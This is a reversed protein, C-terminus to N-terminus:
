LLIDTHKEDLVEDSISLSKMWFLHSQVALRLPADSARTGGTGSVFGVSSHVRCLSRIGCRVRM